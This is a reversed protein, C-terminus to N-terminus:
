DVDWPYVTYDRIENLEAYEVAEEETGFCLDYRFEGEVILYYVYDHAM